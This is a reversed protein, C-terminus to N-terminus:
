EKDTSTTVSPRMMAQILGDTIKEREDSKVGFNPPIGGRFTEEHGHIVIEPMGNGGTGFTVTVMAYPNKGEALAQLSLQVIQYNFSSAHKDEVPVDVIESSRVDTVTTLHAIVDAKDFLGRLYRRFGTKEIDRKYRLWPPILHEMSSGMDGHEKPQFLM